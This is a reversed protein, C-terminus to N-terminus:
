DIGKEKAKVFVPKETDVGPSVVILDTELLVKDSHGGFEVEINGVALLAAKQELLESEQKEDTVTVLAGNEKLLKASAIGSRAMGVVTIKKGSLNM